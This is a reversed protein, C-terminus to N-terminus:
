KCITKKEYVFYVSGILPSCFFIYFFIMQQLTVVHAIDDVFCFPFSVMEIDTRNSLYSFILLRLQNFVPMTLTLPARKNMENGKVKRNRQEDFSKILQHQACM